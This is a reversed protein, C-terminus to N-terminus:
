VTTLKQGCQLGNIQAATWAAATNPNTEWISFYDAWSETLTKEDAPYQTSGTYVVPTVGAPNTDRKAHLHLQLGFIVGTADVPLDSMAYLDVDDLVSSSVHEATSEPIEDVCEYNDGASPVWDTQVGIGDPAIVEVRCDGLFSTGNTLYIDDIYVFAATDGQIKIRDIDTHGLNQGTGSDTAGEDLRISYSGDTDNTGVNLKFEVYNWNIQSTTIPSGVPTTTNDRMRVTGSQFIADCVVTDGSMFSVVVQQTTLLIAMGLVLTPTASFDRYISGGGGTNGLRCCHSSRRGLSGDLATYGAATWLAELSKAGFSEMFLLPM